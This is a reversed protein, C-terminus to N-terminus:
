SDLHMVGRGYGFLGRRACSSEYDGDRASLDQTPRVMRTWETEAAKM